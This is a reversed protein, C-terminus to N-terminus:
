ERDHERPREDLRHGARSLSAGSLSPPLQEFLLAQPQDDTRLRREEMVVRIEQAFEGSRADPPAHSRSRAADDRGAEREAGASFLGHLRSQYIRQRARRRCRGSSQVRRVSRKPTGKFMMHELVHAVGTRGNTEDMSGARYWVMHAVTPARNIKRSSSGCVM